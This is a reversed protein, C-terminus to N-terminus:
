VRNGFAPRAEGNEEGERSLVVIAVMRMTSSSGEARLVRPRRRLFRPWWTVSTLAHRGGDLRERVIPEVHDHRIQPHRIAVAELHEPGGAGVTRLRVDDEEGGIGPPFRGLFRDLEAGAVVELRSM